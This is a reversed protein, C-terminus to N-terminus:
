RADRRSVHRPTWEDPLSWPEFGDPSVLFKVDRDRLFRNREAPTDLAEWHAIVTSGTDVLVVKDPKHPEARLEAIREELPTVDILDVDQVLDLQKELKAIEKANDDGPILKRIRYSQDGWIQRLKAEIGNELEPIQVVMGCSVCRYYGGYSRSRKLAAYLPTQCRACYAVRLLYHQGSSWQGRVQKRSRLAVKLAAYDEESLLGAMNSSTLVQRVSEVLWPKGVMTTIGEANLWRQIAGNSMGAIADAAMRRAIPATGDEDPM